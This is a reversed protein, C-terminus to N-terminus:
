LYVACESSEMICDVLRSRARACVRCFWFAGPPPPTAVSQSRRLPATRTDVCHMFSNLRPLMWAWYADDFRVRFVRMGKIRHYSVFDCWERECIALQGQIQAMYWAPIGEHVKSAPCKVEVIGHLPAQTLADPSAGLRRYGPHVFLGASELPIALAAHDCCPDTAGMDHPVFARSRVV